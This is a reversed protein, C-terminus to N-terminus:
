LCKRWYSMQLKGDLGSYTNMDIIMQIDVASIDSLIM